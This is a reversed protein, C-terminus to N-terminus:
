LGNAPTPAPKSDTFLWARFFVDLQQGSVREALRKFELSGGLGDANNHVWQRSVRYFDVTGIRNRLAQLTMAGRDYVAGAFLRARGPDGIKVDWFRNSAELNDYRVRLQQQPTTGRIHREWLWGSYTAYGENLWIHKWRRM